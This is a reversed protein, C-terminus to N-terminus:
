KKSDLFIIIISVNDTSGTLIAKEALKKAINVHKNIRRETKIDYCNML